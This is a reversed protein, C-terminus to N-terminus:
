SLFPLYHVQKYNSWKRKNSYLPYCQLGLEVSSVWVGQAMRCNQSSRPSPSTISSIEKWHAGNGDELGSGGEGHRLVGTYSLLHSWAIFFWMLQSMLEPTGRPCIQTTLLYFSATCAFQKSSFLKAAVSVITDIAAFIDQFVCAWSFMDCEHTLSSLSPVGVNPTPYNVKSTVTRRVTPYKAAGRAEVVLHGYHEERWNYCGLSDWAKTVFDSGLPCLWEWQNLM